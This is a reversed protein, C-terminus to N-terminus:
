PTQKGSSLNKLTEYLQTNHSIMAGEQLLRFTEHQRDDRIARQSSVIQTSAGDKGLAELNLNLEEATFDVDLSPDAIIGHLFIKEDSIKFIQVEHTTRKEVMDIKSLVKDLVIDSFLNILSNVKEPDNEKLEQWDDATITHSSLFQIFESELSSLEERTLARYKPQISM